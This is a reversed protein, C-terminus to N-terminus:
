IPADARAPLFQLFFFGEPPFRIDERGHSPGFVAIDISEPMDYFVDTGEDVDLNKYTNTRKYAAGGLSLFLGVISLLLACKFVLKKM